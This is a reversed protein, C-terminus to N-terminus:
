MECPNGHYPCRHTEGHLGKISRGTTSSVRSGHAQPWNPGFMREMFLLIVFVAMCEYILAKACPTQM